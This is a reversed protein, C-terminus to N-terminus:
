GEIKYIAGINNRYIRKGLEKPLGFTMFDHPIYFYRSTGATVNDRIDFSENVGMYFNTDDCLFYPREKGRTPMGARTKSPNRVL